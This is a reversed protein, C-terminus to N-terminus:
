WTDGSGVWLEPDNVQGSCRSGGGIISLLWIIGSFRRVTAIEVRGLIGFRVHLTGVMFQFRALWDTNRLGITGNAWIAYRVNVIVM